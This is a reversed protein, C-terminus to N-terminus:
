EDCSLVDDSLIGVNAAFVKETPMCRECIMGSPLNALSQVTRFPPGAGRKRAGSFRWGCMTHGEDNPQARHITSTATNQVFIRDDPRAFGAAIAAVDQAQTQVVEELRLMAAELKRM